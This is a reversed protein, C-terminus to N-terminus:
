STQEDHKKRRAKPPFQLPWKERCRTKTCKMLTHCRTCHHNYYECPKLGKRYTPKCECYFCDCNLPGRNEKKRKEIVSCYYMFGTLLLLWGLICLMFVSINLGISWGPM